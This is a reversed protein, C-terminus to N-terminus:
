VYEEMTKARKRLEEMMKKEEEKDAQIEEDSKEEEPLTLVDELELGGKSHPVLTAWMLLRVREIEVREKKRLGKLFVMCEHWDMNEFFYDPSV